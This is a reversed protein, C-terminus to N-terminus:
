VRYAAPTNCQECFDWFVDFSVLRRYIEGPDRDGAAGAANCLKLMDSAFRDARSKAAPKKTRFVAIDTEIDCVQMILQLRAACLLTVDRFRSDVPDTLSKALRNLDACLEFAAQWGATSGQSGALTQCRQLLAFISDRVPQNRRGVEVELDHEQAAKVFNKRLIVSTIKAGKASKLKWVLDQNVLGVKIYAGKMEPDKRALALTARMATLNLGAQDGIEAKILRLMEKENFDELKVAKKEGYITKKKDVFM